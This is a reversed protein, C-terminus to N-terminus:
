FIGLAIDRLKKWLKWEVDNQILLDKMLRSKKLIKRFKVSGSCNGITHWPFSM